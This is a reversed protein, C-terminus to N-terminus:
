RYIQCSDNELAVRAGDLPDEDTPDFNPGARFVVNISDAIRGRGIFMMKWTLHGKSEDGHEHSGTKPAPRAVLVPIQHEGVL